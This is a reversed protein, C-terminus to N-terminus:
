EVLWPFRVHCVTKRKCCGYLISFVAKSFLPISFNCGDYIEFNQYIGASTIDTLLKLNYNFTKSILLQQM